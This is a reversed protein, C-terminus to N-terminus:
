WLLEGHVAYRHLALFSSAIHHQQGLLWNVLFVRPSALLSRFLSTSKPPSDDQENRCAAVLSLTVPLKQQTLAKCGSSKFHQAIM